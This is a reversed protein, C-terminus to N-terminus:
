ERFAHHKIHQELGIGAAEKIFFRSAIDDEDRKLAGL